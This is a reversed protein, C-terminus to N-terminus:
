DCFAPIREVRELTAIQRRDDVGVIYLGNKEGSEGGVLTDCFWQLRREGVSVVRVQECVQRGGVAGDDLSPGFAPEVVPSNRRGDDGVFQFQGSVWV